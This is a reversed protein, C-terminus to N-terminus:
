DLPIEPFIRCPVPRYSTTCPRRPSDRRALADPLKDIRPAWVRRRGGTPAEASPPPPPPSSSTTAASSSAFFFFLRLHRRRLLLHHFVAVFGHSTRRSTRRPGGTLIDDFGTSFGSCTKIISGCFSSRNLPVSFDPTMEKYCDYRM